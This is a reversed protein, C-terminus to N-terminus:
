EIVGYHFLQYVPYASRAVPPTHPIIWGSGSASCEGAVGLGPAPLAALTTYTHMAM